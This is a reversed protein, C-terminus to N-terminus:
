DMPCQENIVFNWYLIDFSLLVTHNVTSHLEEGFQGVPYLFILIFYIGKASPLFVFREWGKQQRWRFFIKTSSDADTSLNPTERICSKKKYKKTIKWIKLDIEWHWPGIFTHSKTIWFYVWQCFFLRPCIIKLFKM